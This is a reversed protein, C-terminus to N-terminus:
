VLHYHCLIHKIRQHSKSEKAQAIVETSDCYLLNSGDISLIVELEIIFKRSWVTEKTADSAAIYEVKCISDVMTHQKFNKLCIAGGNLIFMYDSM